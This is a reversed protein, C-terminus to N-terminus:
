IFFILFITNKLSSSFTVIIANMPLNIYFSTPFSNDNTSKDVMDVGGAPILLLLTLWWLVLRVRATCSPFFRKLNLGQLYFFTDPDPQLTGEEKNRYM